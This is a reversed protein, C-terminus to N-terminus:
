NVFAKAVSQTSITMSITISEIEIRRYNILGEAEDVIM